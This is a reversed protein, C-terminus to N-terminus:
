SHANHQTYAGEDRRAKWGFGTLQGRHATAADAVAATIDRGWPGLPATNLGDAASSSGGFGAMAQVLQSTSGLQGGLPDLRWYWPLGAARRQLQRRLSRCALM